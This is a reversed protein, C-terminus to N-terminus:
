LITISTYLIIDHTKHYINIFWSFHTILLETTGITTRTKNNTFLYNLVFISNLPSSLSRLIFTYLDVHMMLNFLFILFHSKLM